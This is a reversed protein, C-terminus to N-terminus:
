FLSYQLSGDINITKMGIAELIRNFPDLVFMQFMASRNVPAYKSAWKPWNRAQYAFRTSTDKGTDVIYWKLKGGYIPESGLRHKNNLWNYYALAKVNSPTKKAFKLEIGKDDEVYKTYNHVNLSGCISDIDANFFDQKLRQVEINLEQTLYKSDHDLLFRILHKLINRAYSPISSKVVELGKVKLPMKDEDYRKGDKWMIVQAYRKKHNLWVGSKCITELEFRHVSDGHRKAYYERIYNENHDNLFDENLKAIFECIETDSMEEFNKITHLLPDYSIYLSNHVLIDNAIFTHTPDDMEIDYVYEDEFEGICECSEIEEIQYEM